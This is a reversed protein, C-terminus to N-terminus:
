RPSMSLTSPSASAATSALILVPHFLNLCNTNNSVLLSTDKIILPLIYLLQTHLLMKCPLSVQGTLFSFTTTSWRASILITLHIHPTLNFSLSGLLSNLYLSPVSSMASTNCCFLSRQYPCTSRFSSLSQTFFHIFNLTWSWSSSWLHGPCLNYSLITLCTFHVSHIGNIMAFPPLHYLIDSSWSPHTHTLTKERVPRGPNDRVLPRSVTTHTHKEKFKGTLEIASIAEKPIFVNSFM